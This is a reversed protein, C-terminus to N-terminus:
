FFFFFFSIAPRLQMHVQGFIRTRRIELHSTYLHATLMCTRISSAAGSAPLPYSSFIACDLELERSACHSVKNRACICLRLCSWGCTAALWSAVDKSERKKPLSANAKRRLSSSSLLAFPWPGARQPCHDQLVRYGAAIGVSLQARPGQDPSVHDTEDRTAGHGILAWRHTVIHCPSACVSM